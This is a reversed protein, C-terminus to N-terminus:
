GIDVSLIFPEIKLSFFNFKSLSTYGGERYVLIYGYPGDFLSCIELSPAPGVLSLLSAGTCGTCGAAVCWLVRAAACIPITFFLKKQRAWQEMEIVKQINKEGM